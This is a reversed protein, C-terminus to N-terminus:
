TLREPAIFSSLNDVIAGQGEDRWLLRIHWEDEGNRSVFWSLGDDHPAFCCGLFEWTEGQPHLDGDYDQFEALVRYRQGAHLFQHTSNCNAANSGSWYGRREPGIM